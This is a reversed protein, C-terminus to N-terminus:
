KINKYKNYKSYFIAFAIIAMIIFITVIGTIGAKSLAKNSVSTDTNDTKAGSSKESTVQTKTKETDKNAVTDDKKDENETNKGEKSSDTEENGANGGQEGSNTGENGTNGGQNGSNTGENGTNGGQNGSNTGENGTNGGQNGSETGENGTNGGQNGSETGENGTNGGQNGSNTGENGSNGGNNTTEVKITVTAKKEGISAESNTEADSDVEFPEIKIETTGAKATEKVKFELEFINSSTIKSTSGSILDLETSTGLNTFNSDKVTTNVLDLVTSDYNYKLGTVGNIGDQCNVTLLVTFTEGPKVEGKSPVFSATATAAQVINTWTLIMVIGLIFSLIRNKM